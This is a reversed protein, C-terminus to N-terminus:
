NRQNGFVFYFELQRLKILKVHTNRLNYLLVIGHHYSYFFGECLTNSKEGSESLRECSGRSM